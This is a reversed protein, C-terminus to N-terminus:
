SGKRALVVWMTKILIRVDLGLTWNDIYQLDLKVVDDFNNIKNRGNVQWLGTIGPKISIRRRHWNEYQDVEDPTPPRTGVLSMEGKFVNWFQPLEDISTMRLFRGVSTIRPDNKIKFIAGNMENQKMLTSKHVDADLYMSRFKWIRFTRGSEGIREQNYFIPGPSELRIGLAVLPFLFITVVLGALSGLIDLVRKLFLQQADLSKAYFTLIPLSNEFFSLDRRYRGVKYFDLVMRVTVGLEELQQLHEEIDVVQDKGLCFVVEDVPYRKCNELLNDLRGMVKYGSVNDKLDGSAVQLVGLVRLGWDAHNEVLKIFEQARETTGVILLQRYNLGKRRIYNLCLKLFIREVLIFLFATVIFVLILRRSYFDRDFFLVLASLIIGSFVHVAFVRYTLDILSIQRISKYLNYKVLLYYWVPLAPLLSWSYEKISRVEGALFHKRFYYAAVFSLVVLSLDIVVTLRNLLKAQEKLL